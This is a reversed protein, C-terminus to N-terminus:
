FNKKKTDISIIPNNNSKYESKLRTINEFQENRNETTGISIQKQAKRKVYGNRKLLQRAINKDINFGMKDTLRSAIEISTLNTWRINQNMPDGATYDKLIDLFKKEIDPYKNIIKTRGGGAKRIRNKPLKPPNDLDKIGQLVTKYSCNLLISIYTIGGRNLKKAEIGAYLRRDKESLRNYVSKMQNEIENNYPKIM